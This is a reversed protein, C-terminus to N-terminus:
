QWLPANILLKGVQLPETLSQVGHCRVANHGMRLFEDIREHERGLSFRGLALAPARMKVALNKFPRKSISAPLEPAEYTLCDTQKPQHIPGALSAIRLKEVYSKRFQTAAEKLLLDFSSERATFKITNRVFIIKANYEFFNLHSRGSFQEIKSERLHRNRGGEDVAHVVHQAERRYRAQAVTNKSRLAEHRCFFESLDQRSLNIDPEAIPDAILVERLLSADHTREKELRATQVCVSDIILRYKLEPLRLNEFGFDVAKPQEPRGRSLKECITLRHDRCRCLVGNEVGDAERGGLLIRDARAIEQYRAIVVVYTADTFEGRSIETCILPNGRECKQKRRRRISDFPQWFGITIKYAIEQRVFQPALILCLRRSAIGDEKANRGIRLEKSGKSSVRVKSLKLGRENISGLFTRRKAAQGLLVPINTKTIAIALYGILQRGNRRGRGPGQQRSSVQSANLKNM